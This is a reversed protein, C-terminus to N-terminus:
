ATAPTLARRWADYGGLLDSVDTHGHRRLLSAAISSRIGSACYVVVPTDAPIEALRRPLEALPIAIAGPIAGGEVEGANRVDLLAPPHARDLAQRLESVTVRRAQTLHGAMATLAGEPERLYGAVTDLGIRALRTVVEAERDQPAIVLIESDPPVVMGAREAFRGDAPVNLAGRPHGAAFELADRTDLVVAGAAQLELFEAPSLPRLHASVDLLEHRKRNLVADYGFYGPAPPQGETVIAVFEDRSMPACAYNTLRQDGITSQLATSLNKGCASGAGHAPFVRVQDPLAMLKHQVSDYLMGGLEDATIGFSALLDPRGVDGIFLADGTLVGYPVTDGPHEFLLVSISEPTHGPTELIQLTVEGLSIREGDALARIPYEVGTARRGYGIWAGTRAALELHGAIFDAHFHTNIVAEITLGHAAADNLYESVDRRPDVVVARGTTKDGILYSAQSLCELYYQTFFMRNERNERSEITNPADSTAHTTGLASAHTDGGDPGAGSTPPPGPVIPGPRPPSAVLPVGTRRARIRWVVLAGSVAAVIFASQAPWGSLTDLVLHRVTAPVQQVLVFAAMVVVFWGFARRLRGPDVHGALRSGAMGGVVAAATVALTLPWDLRVSDLYGALGAFSKMAIVVLSTGVAVPMTLGGLLVLAPVVLFGGGAGILGTVAGVAIGEALIRAMPRNVPGREAVAHPSTMSTISATSTMSATSTIPASVPRPRLMAAATVAMVLGFAVLLVGAPIYAALRGGGYAGIMGATGYLLGTRWQIRRARAHPLMGVASTVGVVFLSMAIAPKPAVDALYILIPVTLISGGGGLLGLSLGVLVAAGLTLALTM